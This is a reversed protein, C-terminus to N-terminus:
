PRARILEQYIWGRRGSEDAIRLWREASSYAVVPTQVPLTFLVDFGTGPGDRVNASATTELNLPLTLHRGGPHPPGLDADTLRGRAATAASKAQNALYLAGDYHERDFEASSQEILQRLEAVVKAGSSETLSQLALEAEAIGTAAEARTVLTQSKAMARVVERRADDLRAQLEGLQADKELARLKLAALELELAAARRELVVAGPAADARAAADPGAAAVPAPTELIPAKGALTCGAMVAAAPLLVLICAPKRLLSNL